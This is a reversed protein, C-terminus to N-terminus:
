YQSEPLRVTLGDLEPLLTIQCSLRSEPCREMTGELMADEDDSMPKLKDQWEADVYCHCTACSLNGGCEGVIGAINEQTAAEMVSVGESAEIEHKTSDHEIINLKISM